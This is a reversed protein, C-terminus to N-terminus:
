VMGCLAARVDSTRDPWGCASAFAITLASRDGGRDEDVVTVVRPAGPKDEGDTFGRGASFIATNAGIALAVTLLVAAGSAQM